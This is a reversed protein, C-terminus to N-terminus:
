NIECGGATCALEQSGTTSDEQEYLTLYNWDLSVPMEDNAILYEEQTIEQYPAQQYTGTDYPLFSVGSMRDFNNYVFTGVEDWEHERVYVTISPKHECWHEAYALWLRLQDLATVQDRTVANDPAKIPFSFVYTSDPKMVDDETPIGQMYMFQAVPDIKNGRNTRIYFSSYRPHIGSAADVLQSVTGSPKVCTIAAAPNIGLLEAWKENEEIACEQLYGLREALDPDNHDSLLPCDMIGTISVGLLREEECNHKWEPTLYRFDTFTSQITGIVTALRVKAELTPITDDHRAVVESLNCFQRDRLIIESCPNTGFAYNADRRFNRRAQDQMGVRNVFGREGSGSDVLAQWEKAFVEIAPRGDWVASNNALAYEGHEIWWEGSKAQRMDEDDPDSLSILASRRVGGVVVIDGVKCMIGHCERSTLQRGQAAQFTKVVYEFLDVLPQPGSARGGFTKLKAGAPRVNSVDWTPIGGKYLENILQRLAKAWGIKSDEVLIALNSRTLQPVEPLQRTYGREVSFGVGTGCCLIYLAEDFAEPRNITLYACNYGAVNDRELAPGATMVARMSGMVKLGLIAERLQARTENWLSQDVGYTGIVQRELQDLYRDITEHYHERRGLNDNWRAYKTKHIQQQYLTPLAYQDISGHGSATSSEEM